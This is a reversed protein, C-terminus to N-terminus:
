SPSEPLSLTYSSLKRSPEFRIKLEKISQVRRQLSQRSSLPFRTASSHRVVNIKAV